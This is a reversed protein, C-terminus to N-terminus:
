QGPQPVNEIKVKSEIKSKKPKVNTPYAVRTEKGVEARSKFMTPQFTSKPTFLIISAPNTRMFPDDKLTMEKGDKMRVVINHVLNNKTGVGEEKNRSLEVVESIDNMISETNKSHHLLISLFSVSAGYSDLLDKPQESKHKTFAFFIICGVLPINIWAFSYPIWDQWFALNLLVLTAFGLATIQKVSIM